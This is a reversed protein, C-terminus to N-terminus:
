HTLFEDPLINESQIQDKNKLDELLCKGDFGVAKEAEPESFYVLFTITKIGLVVARFVYNSNNEMKYLYEKQEEPSLHSFPRRYGQLLSSMELSKILAIMASRILTPTGSILKDIEQVVKELDPKPSFDAENHLMIQVFNRITELSSKGLRGEESM